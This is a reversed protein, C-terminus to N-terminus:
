GGVVRLRVVDSEGLDRAVLEDTAKWRNKMRALPSLGLRDELQRVEPALLVNGDDVKLSLRVYRAVARADDVALWQTAAASSWLLAWLVLARESPKKGPWPPPDGTRGSSPIQTWEGSQNRRRANPNPAPGPM